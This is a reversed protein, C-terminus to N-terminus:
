VGSLLAYIMVAVNTNAMVQFLPPASSSPTASIDTVAVCVESPCADKVVVYTIRVEVVNAVAKQFFSVANAVRIPPELPGRVLAHLTEPMWYQLLLTELM